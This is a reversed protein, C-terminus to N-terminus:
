ADCTDCKYPKEGTHVRMHTVLESKYGCKKDCIKCKLEKKSKKSKQRKETKKKTKKQSKKTEPKQSLKQRKEVEAEYKQVLELGNQISTKLSEIEKKAKIVEINNEIDSM